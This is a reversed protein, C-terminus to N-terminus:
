QNVVRFEIKDKREPLTELTPIEVECTKVNFGIQCLWKKNVKVPCNEGLVSVLDRLKVFVCDASGEKRGRKNM